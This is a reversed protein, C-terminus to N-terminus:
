LLGFRTFIQYCNTAIMTTIITTSIITTIIFTPIMTTTMIFITTIFTTIIIIIITSIITAFIITIITIIFTTIIFTTNIITIIITSIITTTIINTIFTFHSLLCLARREPSTSKIPCLQHNAKQNLDKETTILEQGSCCQVEQEVTLFRHEVEEEGHHVLKM